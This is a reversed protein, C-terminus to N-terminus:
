IYYNIASLSSFFINYRPVSTQCNPLNCNFVFDCSYWVTNLLNFNVKEEVVFDYYSIGKKLVTLSLNTKNTGGLSCHFPSGGSWICARKLRTMDATGSVM